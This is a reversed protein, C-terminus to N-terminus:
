SVWEALRSYRRRHPRQLRSSLPEVLLDYRVRREAWIGTTNSAKAFYTAAVLSHRRRQARRPDPLNSFHESISTEM